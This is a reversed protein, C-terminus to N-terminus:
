VAPKPPSEVELGCNDIVLKGDMFLAAVRSGVVHLNALPDGDVIALDAIKGTEISGFDKELGIAQASNITAIKVADTGHFKTNGPDNNLTFDFMSMEHGMTAPTGPTVGGDNGAGIAAGMEYLLRFNAGGNTLIPAYYDVMAAIDVFPTELNGSTIREYGEKVYKGLQPIWYEDVLGPLTEARLQALRKMEPHEALPNGKVIWCEDYAVTATPEIFCGAKIFNEADNETLLDDIAMHAFSSVGCEVARRFSEVSVHHITTKLGRKNAQDAFTALQSKSMITLPENSESDVSQEGIKICEAGREDVARNVADRVQQESADVPFVVVGADPEEYDVHPIALLYQIIRAVLGVDISDTMYGGPPGVVISQLIRPGHMEGRSIKERLSKSIRLDRIGTDRINTIGHALCEKMNKARQLDHHRWTAFMESWLFLMTPFVMETHCHTNFLGPLVTRGKLDISFDAPLGGSDKAPVKIANIRGAKIIISTGPDFYRGNIVDVVKGNKLEVRADRAPAYEDIFNTQYNGNEPSSKQAIRKQEAAYGRKSMNLLFPLSMGSSIIRLAEKRSLKRDMIKM